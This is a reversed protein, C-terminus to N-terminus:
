CPRLASNGKSNGGKYEEKVIEIAVIGSDSLFGRYFFVAQDIVLTRQACRSSTPCCAPCLLM